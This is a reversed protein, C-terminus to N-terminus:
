EWELDFYNTAKSRIDGGYRVFVIIENFSTIVGYERSKDLNIYAVRKGIDKDDLDEFKM